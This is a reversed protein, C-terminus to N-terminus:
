KNLEDYLSKNDEFLKAKESYSMNDFQEKTVTSGNDNGGSVPKPTAKLIDARLEKEKNELFSKLNKHFTDFDGDLLAEASSNSLEDTFGHSLFSAKQISVDKERMLSKLLNEREAEREQREAELREAESQKERLAKKYSATDSSAKNLAAKLRAIEDNSDVVKPEDIEFAELAALKEEATMNEYNEIKSVDIKM